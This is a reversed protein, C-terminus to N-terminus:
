EDPMLTAWPIATAKSQLRAFRRNGAAWAGELRRIMRWHGGGAWPSGRYIRLIGPVQNAVVVVEGDLLIGHRALGDRVSTAM